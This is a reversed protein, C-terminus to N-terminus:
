EAGGGPASPAVGGGGSVTRIGSVVAQVTEVFSQPVRFVGSRSATQAFRQQDIGPVVSGVTVPGLTEPPGGAEVPALTVSFTFRPADFGYVVPDSEPSEEAGLARLDAVAKLLNEADRQNPMFRDEPAVVTWRNHRKELKYDVGDFQFSVKEARAVPFRLLSRMRFAQADTL